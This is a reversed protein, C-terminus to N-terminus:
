QIAYRNIASLGLDRCYDVARGELRSCTLQNANAAPRANKARLKKAKGSWLSLAGPPFSIGASIWSFGSPRDEGLSNTGRGETKGTVSRQTNKIRFFQHGVKEAQGQHFAFQFRYPQM